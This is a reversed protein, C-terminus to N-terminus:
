KPPLIAIYASINPLNAISWPAEPKDLQPYEQYFYRDNIKKQKAENVVQQSIFMHLFYGDLHPAEHLQYAVPTDGLTRAFVRNQRGPIYM